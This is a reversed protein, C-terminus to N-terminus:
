AKGASFPEIFHLAPFHRMPCRALTHLGPKLRRIPALAGQALFLGAHHATPRRDAQIRSEMRLFRGTDLAPLPKAGSEPANAVGRAQSHCAAIFRGCDLREAFDLANRQCTFPSLIVAAGCM